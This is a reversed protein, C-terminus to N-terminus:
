PFAALGHVLVAYLRLAASVARWVSKSILPCRRCSQVLQCLVAFDNPKTTSTFAATTGHLLANKGPSIGHLFHRPFDASTTTAFLLGPTASGSLRLFRFGQHRSPGFRHLARLRASSMPGSLALLRPPQHSGGRHSAHLARPRLPVPRSASTVAEPFSTVGVRAPVARYPGMRSLNRV